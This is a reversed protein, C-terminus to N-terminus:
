GRWPEKVAERPGGLFAAASLSLIPGAVNFLARSTNGGANNYAGLALAGCFAVATALVWPRPFRRLRVLGLPLLWIFIYYFTHDFVCRWLGALFGHDAHMYGAFQWPWVLAGAVTSMALTVTAISVVGLACIWAFRPLQLRERRVESMWWGFVFMVSLPAFTEKALAGFFGWFPLLLWRGTLLSWVIFMVFCGEASDVLGALNFNAVCFNLLYLTAGLLATSHDLMLRQGIAVLLCATTATFIANAVLLAFLAADWTRLRGRALWYFPKAVYPVLVRYHNEWHALREYV